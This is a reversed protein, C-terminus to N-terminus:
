SEKISEEMAELTEDLDEDSHAVSVFCTEFQSPALYVGRAMLGRQYRMFRETDSLKATEYDVVPADNFFFQFMSAVGNVQANIGADEAIDGLGDQLKRSSAELRGYLEGGNRGLIKLAALGAAVSVPNGSYTSAQYIKGLPSINDMIEDRAGFAAIVYGGGMIKGLTTIDAEFGYYEQAGGMALRFGTIVEDAILLIDQEETIKRVEELYGEGPLIVGANGVVPELIVAAVEGKNADVVEQLAEVDNYPLLLTNRTTEEPIGLSDPAGFTTAGSGAKVLVYDHAGHYCGEFKILKKKGTFGRAVRIAHMTAETGSNVLRLKDISPYASSVFEAMEVEAETPTGYMTGKGLQEKVAKNVEPNAHGLIMPGYALSYDLYSNGDEDYLRSGQARATFFPYPKYARVPSNVGGPIVKKAREFLSKSKSESM